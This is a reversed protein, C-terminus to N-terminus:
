GSCISTYQPVNNVDADALTLTLTIKNTPQTRLVHAQLFHDQGSTSYGLAATQRGGQEQCGVIGASRQWNPCWSSEHPGFFFM